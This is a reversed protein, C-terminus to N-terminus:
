PANLKQTQQHIMWAAFPVWFIPPMWTGINKRGAPTAVGLIGLTVFGGLLGSWAMGWLAAKRQDATIPAGYGHYHPTIFDM